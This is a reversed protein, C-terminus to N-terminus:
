GHSMWVTLEEHEEITDWLPCDKLIKLSARGYERNVSPEVQGALSHAILQMGYCIGLTPLGLDFVAPDIGPSDQSGVSSPGGSLVLISPNMAKLEDLSVTCPHIESYVGAERIRRAILQTYQSGFDLIVAKNQVQM